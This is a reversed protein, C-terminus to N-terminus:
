SNTALEKPETASKTPKGNTSASASSKQIEAYFEEIWPKAIDPVGNDKAFKFYDELTLTEKVTQRLFGNNELKKLCAQATKTADKRLLLAQGIDGKVIEFIKTKLEMKTDKRDTTSVEQTKGNLNPHEVQPIPNIKPTVKREDAFGTSPRIGQPGRGQEIVQAAKQTAQATQQAQTRQAILRAEEQPTLQQPKQAQQAQAQQGQTMVQSLIPVFGKILTKSLSENEESDGGMSEAKMEALEDAKKEVLEYWNKTRSEARAEADQIMKLVTASNFGGDDSKKSLMTTILTNTLAQSQQLQAQAQKNMELMMMQMQQQSSQQAQMMTQMMLAFQNQQAQAQTQADAKAKEAKQEMLTIWAMPDQHTSDDQHQAKNPDEVGNVFQSQSTVIQNTGHFRAVVKYHGEGFQKQLKSWDYPYEVRAIYGSNKYINFYIPMNRQLAIKNADEFVDRENIQQPTSQSFISDAVLNNETDPDIDYEEDDESDLEDELNEIAEQAKLEAEAEIDAKTKKNKGVSIKVTSKKAQKAM